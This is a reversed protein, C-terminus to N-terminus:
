ATPAHRMGALAYWSDEVSVTFPQYLLPRYRNEKGRAQQGAM